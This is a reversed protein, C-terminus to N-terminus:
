LRVAMVLHGFQNVTVSDGAEVITTSAPEELAGLRLRM